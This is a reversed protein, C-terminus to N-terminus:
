TLIQTIAFPITTQKGTVQLVEVNGNCENRHLFNTIAKRESIPSVDIFRSKIVTAKVHAKETETKAPSIGVQPM